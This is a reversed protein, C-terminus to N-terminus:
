CMSDWQRRAEAVSDPKGRLGGDIFLMSDCGIVVCDATLTADLNSIVQEAKAAALANAVGGPAADPGQADVVSDEDVGSVVIMPDIGAQRLVTRRGPSASALVVRTM